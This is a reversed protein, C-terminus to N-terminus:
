DGSRSGHRGQPRDPWRRIDDLTKRRSAQGNRTKGERQPIRKTIRTVSIRTPEDSNAPRGRTGCIRCRRIPSLPNRRRSGARDAPGDPEAQGPRIRTENFRTPEDLSATRCRTECSWSRWNSSLPNRRRLGVRKAPWAARSSRTAFDNRTRGHSYRAGDPSGLGM